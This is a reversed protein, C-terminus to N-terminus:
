SYSADDDYGDVGDDRAKAGGVFWVFSSTELTLVHQKRPCQSFDYSQTKQRIASRILELYNAKNINLPIESIFNSIM